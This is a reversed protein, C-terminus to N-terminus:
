EGEKVKKNEMLFFDNWSLSIGLEREVAKKRKELGDFAEPSVSFTKQDDRKLSKKEEKEM